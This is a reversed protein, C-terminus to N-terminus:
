LQLTKDGCIIPSRNTRFPNVGGLSCQFSGFPINNKGCLDSNIPQPFRISLTLAARYFSYIYRPFALLLTAGKNRTQSSRIARGFPFLYCIIKHLHVGGFISTSVLKSKYTHIYTCFIGNTRASEAPSAWPETFHLAADLPAVPRYGQCCTSVYRTYFVRSRSIIM